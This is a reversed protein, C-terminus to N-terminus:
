QFCKTYVDTLQLINKFNMKTKNASPMRKSFNISIFLFFFYFKSGNDFERIPWM